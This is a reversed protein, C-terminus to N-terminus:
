KVAAAPRHYICMALEKAFTSLWGNLKWVGSSPSASKAAAFATVCAIAFLMLILHKRVRRGSMDDVNARDNSGIGEHDTSQSHESDHRNDIRRQDAGLSGHGAEDGVRRASCVMAEGIVPLAYLVAHL